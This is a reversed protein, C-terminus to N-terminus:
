SGRLMSANLPYTGCRPTVDDLIFFGADAEDSDLGAAALALESFSISTQIRQILSVLDPFISRATDQRGGCEFSIGDSAVKKM